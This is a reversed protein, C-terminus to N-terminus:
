KRASRISTKRRAFEPVTKRLSIALVRLITLKSVQNAEFLTQRDSRFFLGSVVRVADVALAPFPTMGTFSTVSLRGRAHRGRERRGDSELM